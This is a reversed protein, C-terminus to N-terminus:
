RRRREGAILGNIGRDIWINSALDRTTKPIRGQAHTRGAPHGIRCMDVGVIGIPLAVGAGARPDHAIAVELRHRGNHPGDGACRRRTLEGDGGVEVPRRHDDQGIPVHLVGAGLRRGRRALRRGPKSSHAPPSGEEGAFRKPTDTQTLGGRAEAGRVASPHRM